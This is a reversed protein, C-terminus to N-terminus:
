ENVSVVSSDASTNRLGPQWWIVLHHADSQPRCEVSRCEFVPTHSCGTLLLVVSTLLLNLQKM